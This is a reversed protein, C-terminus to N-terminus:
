NSQKWKSVKIIREIEFTIPKKKIGHDFESIWKQVWLVDYNLVRWGEFSWGIIQNIQLDRCDIGYYKLSRILALIVPCSICSKRQGNKIDEDTVFVFTRQLYNM